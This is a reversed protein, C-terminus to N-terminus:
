ISDIKRPKRNWPKNNKTSAVPKESKTFIGQDLKTRTDSYFIDPENERHFEYRHLEGDTGLVDVFAAEGPKLFDLTYLFILRLKEQSVLPKKTM